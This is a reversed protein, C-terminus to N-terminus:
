RRTSLRAAGAVFWTVPALRWNSLRRRTLSAASRPAHDLALAISGVDAWGLDAWGVDAWGLDTCGPTRGPSWELGSGGLEPEAVGTSVLRSTTVKYCRVMGSGRLASTGGLADAMRRGAAADRVITWQRVLLQLLLVGAGALKGRGGGNRRRAGSWVM